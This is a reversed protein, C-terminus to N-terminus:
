AMREELMGWTSVSSPSKQVTGPTVSKVAFRPTISAALACPFSTFLYSREIVGWVQLHFELKSVTTNRRVQTVAKIRARQFRSSELKVMIAAKELRYELWGLGPPLWDEAWSASRVRPSIM